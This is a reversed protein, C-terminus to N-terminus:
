IVLLRNSFILVGTQLCRNAKNDAHSADVFCHTTVLGGRLRPLNDPIPEKTDRYFDFWDYDQFRSEDVTPYSPDFVLMRKYNLKLYGFIRIAKDLHQQRPNALHSSLMSVENMIDIRGLKVIWRLIGILEQFFQIGLKDM